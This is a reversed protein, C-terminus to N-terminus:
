SKLNMRVIPKAWIGRRHHNAKTNSQGATGHCNCRKELQCVVESSASLSLYSRNMFIEQMMLCPLAILKSPNPPSDWLLDALDSESGYDYFSPYRRALGAADFPIYPFKVHSKTCSYVPHHNVRHVSLLLEWTSGKIKVKMKQRWSDIWKFGMVKAALTGKFITQNWM